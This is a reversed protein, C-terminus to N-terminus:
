TWAHGGTTDSQKFVRSVNRRLLFLYPDSGADVLGFLFTGPSSIMIASLEAPPMAGLADDM